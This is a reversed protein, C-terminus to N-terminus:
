LNLALVLTPLIINSYCGELVVKVKEEYLAGLNMFQNKNLFQLHPPDDSERVTAQVLNRSVLINKYKCILFLGSSVTM